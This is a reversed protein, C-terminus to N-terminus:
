DERKKRRRILFLAAVGAVCAIILIYPLSDVFVGTDPTTNKENTITITGNRVLVDAGFALDWDAGNPSAVAPRSVTQGDEDVYSYVASVKYGQGPSIETLTLATGIVFNEMADSAKDKLSFRRIEEGNAKAVIVFSKTKDGLNGTVEKTVTLTVVSRKWVAYLVNEKDGLNDVIVKDGPQYTPNAANQDEDWGILEYGSRIFTDAGYLTIQANNPLTTTGDELAHPKTQPDAGEYNANYTLTTTAPKPGWVAYLTIIGDTAMSADIPLKDGPQYITTPNAADTAWGLFVMGEPATLGGPLQIDAAAGEAYRKDDEPPTGTGGNANYEVSFQESSGVHAYLEYNRHIQTDLKFTKGEDDYTWGLFSQSEGLTVAPIDEEPITNGKPITLEKIKVKNQDYFTVTYMPPVWKAYVIINNAPMTKGTFDYETQGEPDAYWGAFTSGEQRAPPTTPTYAAGAGSVDAEYKHSYEKNGEGGHNIYVIKYSNRDYYFKANNYNAGNKPSKETNCTFGTIPYRDEETVTSTTSAGTDTHDLVYQGNLDALYYDAKGDGQNTKYYFSDGNLPMVDINSQATNTDTGVKWTGGPWQERINAGYKATICLNTIEEWKYYYSVWKKEYFKVTYVNRNYYVNVITSGDGKITQQQIPQATFGLDSQATAATMSGSAGGKSESTSYAYGEEDAKEKWHLVTYTTDNAKWKAYVTTDEKIGEFVAEQTLEENLYWKDFSYGPRTPNAAPASAATGKAFYAPAIYSGGMSNFTIWFVKEVKPYLTINETAIAVSEVRNTLGTDTYWGTITEDAAVPFKVDSFDSIVDGTKGEKTAVVRGDEAPKDKFFVYYVNEIQAYVDFTQDETVEETVPGFTVAPDWGTFKENPGTPVEPEVLTDGQKVRQTSLLQKGKYFNYTLVKADPQIIRALDIAPIISKSYQEAGLAGVPVVALLMLATMFIAALRRFGNKM